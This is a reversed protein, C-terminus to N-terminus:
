NASFCALGHAAFIKSRLLIAWPKPPKNTRRLM